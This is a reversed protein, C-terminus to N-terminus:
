AFKKPPLSTWMVWTFSLRILCQNPKVLWWVVLVILVLRGVIVVRVLANEVSFIVLLVVVIFEVEVVVIVVIGEEIGVLDELGVAIILKM